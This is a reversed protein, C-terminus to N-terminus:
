DFDIKFLKLALFAIAAGVVGLIIFAGAGGYTVILPYADDLAILAYIPAVTFTIPFFLIGLIVAWIGWGTADVVIELQLVLVYIVWVGGAIAYLCSLAAGLITLVLKMLKGKLLRIGIHRLNYDLTGHQTGRERLLVRGGM